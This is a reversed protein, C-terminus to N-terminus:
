KVPIHFFVLNGLIQFYIFEKGINSGLIRM